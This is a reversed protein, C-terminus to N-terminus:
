STHVKVWSIIIIIDLESKEGATSVFFCIINIDFFKGNKSLM